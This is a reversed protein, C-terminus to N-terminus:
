PTRRSAKRRHWRARERARRCTVCGRRGSNSWTNDPTFPHGRDCHMQRAHRAAPSEGCMVNEVHTIVRMHDPNICARVRCKHDIVLGPPIPGRHAEWSVRHAGRTQRTTSDFLVGYGRSLARTWLWCGTNPEPISYRELRPDLTM